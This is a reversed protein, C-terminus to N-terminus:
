NDQIKRLSLLHHDYANQFTHSYTYLRLCFYKVLDRVFFTAYLLRECHQWSAMCCATDGCDFCVAERLSYVQSYTQARTLRYNLCGSPSLYFCILIISNILNSRLSSRKSQESTILVFFFHFCRM